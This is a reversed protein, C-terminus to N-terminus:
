KKFPAKAKEVVMEAFGLIKDELGPKHSQNPKGAFLGYENSIFIYTYIFYAFPAFALIAVVWMFFAIEIIEGIM